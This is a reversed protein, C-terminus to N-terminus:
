RSPRCARAEAISKAAELCEVTMASGMPSERGALAAACDDVWQPRATEFEGRLDERRRARDEEFHQEVSAWALELERGELQQALSRRAGEADHELAIEAEGHAMSLAFLHDGLRECRSPESTPTCAMCLWSALLLRARTM